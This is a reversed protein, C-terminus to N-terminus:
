ASNMYVHKSPVLTYLLQHYIVMLILTQKQTCKEERYYYSRTHNFIKTQQKANWPPSKSVKTLVVYLRVFFFVGWHAIRLLFKVLVQCLLTTISM